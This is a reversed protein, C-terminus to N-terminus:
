FNLYKCKMHINKNELLQFYLNSKDFDSEPKFSKIISNIQPLIELIFGLNSENEPIGKIIGNDVEIPKNILANGENDYKFIPTVLFNPRFSLRLEIKAQDWNSEHNEVSKKHQNFASLTYDWYLAGEIFIKLLYGYKNEGVIDLFKIKLNSEKSFVPTYVIGGLKKGSYSLEIEFLFLPETDIDNPRYRIQNYKEYINEDCIQFRKEINKIFFSRVFEPIERSDQRGRSEKSFSFIFEDKIEITAKAM